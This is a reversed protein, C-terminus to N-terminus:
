FVTYSLVVLVFCVLQERPIEALLGDQKSDLSHLPDQSRMVAGQPLPGRLAPLSSCMCVYVCM